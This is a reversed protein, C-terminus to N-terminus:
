KCTTYPNAKSGDPCWHGAYDGNIYRIALQGNPHYEESMTNNGKRVDMTKKNGNERYVTSVVAGNKRELSHRVKGNPYFAVGQVKENQSYEFLSVLYIKGGQNQKFDLSIGHRKGNVYSIQGSLLRRGNQNITYSCSTKTGDNPNNNTDLTYIPNWGGPHEVPCMRGKVKYAEMGPVSSLSQQPVPEPQPPLGVPVGKVSSHSGSATEGGISIKDPVPEMSGGQQSPAVMTVIVPLNAKAPDLNFKEIFFNNPAGSIGEYFEGELAELPMPGGGKPNRYNKQEAVFALLEMCEERLKLYRNFYDNNGTSYHMQRQLTVGLISAFLMPNENVAKDVTTGFLQMYQTNAQRLLAKMADSLPAQAKGGAAFVPLLLVFILGLLGLRAWHTSIRSAM